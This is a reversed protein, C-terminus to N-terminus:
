LVAGLKTLGHQSHCLFPMFCAKYIIAKYIIYRILLHNCERPGHDVLDCRTWALLDCCVKLLKANFVHLRHDCSLLCVYCWKNISLLWLIKNDLVAEGVSARSQFFAEAYVHCVSIGDIEGLSHFYGYAQIRYMGCGARKTHYKSIIEKCM